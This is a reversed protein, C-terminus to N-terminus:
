VLFVNNECVYIYEGGGRSTITLPRHLLSTQPVLLGVAQLYRKLVANKAESWGKLGFGRLHPGLIQIKLRDWQNMRLCMLTPSTSNKLKFFQNKILSFESALSKNLCDALNFLNRAKILFGKFASEPSALSLFVPVKFPLAVSQLQCKSAPSPWMWSIWVM